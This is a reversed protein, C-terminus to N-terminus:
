FFRDHFIDDNSINTYAKELTADQQRGLFALTSLLSGTSIGTVIDFSDPRDGSETWGKLVGAGWAGNAGGGSLLLASPVRRRTQLLKTLASELDDARKLAFPVAQVTPSTPACAPCTRHGCGAVFNIFALVLVIYALCSGTTQKTSSRGISAHLSPLPTGQGTMPSLCRRLTSKPSAM